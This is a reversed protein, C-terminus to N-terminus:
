PNLIFLRITQILRRLARPRQDPTSQSQTVQQTDQQATSQLNPPFFRSNRSEWLMWEAESAYPRPTPDPMSYAITKLRAIESALEDVEIRDTNQEDVNGDRSMGCAQSTILSATLFLTTKKM